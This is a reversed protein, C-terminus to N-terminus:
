LYREIDDSALSYPIFDQGTLRRDSLHFQVSSINKVYADSNVVFSSRNTIM